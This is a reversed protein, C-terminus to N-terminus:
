RAASISPSCRRLQNDPLIGGVIILAVFLIAQKDTLPAPGARAPGRRVDGSHRGRNCSKFGFSM